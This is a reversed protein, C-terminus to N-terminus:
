AVDVVRHGLLEYVDAHDHKRLFGLVEAGSAGCTVSSDCVQKLPDIAIAEAIKGPVYLILNARRALFVFPGNRELRSHRNLRM